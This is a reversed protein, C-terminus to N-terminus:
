ELFSELHHDWKAKLYNMQLENLLSHLRSERENRIPARASPREPRPQALLKRIEEPLSPDHMAERAFTTWPQFSDGFMEDGDELVDIISMKKLGDILRMNVIAM